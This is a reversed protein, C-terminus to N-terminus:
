PLELSTSISQSLNVPATWNSLVTQPEGLLPVSARVQKTVGVSLEAARTARGCCRSNSHEGTRNM